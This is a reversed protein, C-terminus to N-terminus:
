SSRAGVWVAIAILSGIGVVWVWVAESVPGLSGLSLGGPTVDNQADIYAIIDRKGEPTISADNFVPMAQPGTLMAEYIHTPDTATVPPAIKGESLAGGAGVANHCMACNTRFLEMGNAANGLAPDVMESSPISPGPGLSAVYAAMQSIAEDNFQVPKVPAQPSNSVMPMRGTGVQFDVSAAGVGILSPGVDTGQGETGHCYSCNAAFLKQGADIDADSAGNQAGAPVVTSYILATVFLALLVLVAPAHRSRRPHALSNM